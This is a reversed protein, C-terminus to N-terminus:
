PNNLLQFNYIATLFDTEVIDQVYSIEDGQTLPFKPSVKFETTDVARDSNRRVKAGILETELNNVLLRTLRTM